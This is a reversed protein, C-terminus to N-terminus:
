WARVRDVLGHKVPNFYVYDVHAHLDGKMM